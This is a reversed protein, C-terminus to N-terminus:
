SGRDPPTKPPDPVRQRPTDRLHTQSGQRPTNRLHIQSGRLIRQRPTDTPNTPGGRDEPPVRTKSGSGPQEQYTGAEHAGVQLCPCLSRHARSLHLEARRGSAGHAGWPAMGQQGPGVWGCGAEKLARDGDGSLGSVPSHCGRGVEWRGVLRKVSDARAQPRLVQPSPM